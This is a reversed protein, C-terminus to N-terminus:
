AATMGVIRGTYGLLLPWVPYTMFSRTPLQKYGVHYLSLSTVLGDGEAVHRAMQFYNSGDVGYPGDGPRAPWKLAMASLFIAAFVIARGTRSSGEAAGSQM